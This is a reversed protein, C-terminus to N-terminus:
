RSVEFSLGYTLSRAPPKEGPKPMDYNTGFLYAGPEAFTVSAEGNADTKGSYAFKKDRYADGARAIEFDLNAVPKGDFTLTFKLADGAFIENPHTTPVFEFGKSTAKLAGKSPAGRTVYTEAIVFRANEVVEGAPAPANPELQKWDAGLKAYRFVRGAREGTSIKWTGETPLPAEVLNQEKFSVGPGIKVAEGSPGTATYDGAGRIPFDPVFVNAESLGGHLTVVDKSPAFTLPVIYPVHAALAPAAIAAMAAALFLRSGRM